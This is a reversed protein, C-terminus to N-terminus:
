FSEVGDGASWYKNKDKSDDYYVIGEQRGEKFKFRSISIPARSMDLITGVQIYSAFFFSFSDTPTLRIAQGDVLQPSLYFPSFKDEEERQPSYCRVGVHALDKWKNLVTLAPMSDVQHEPGRDSHFTVKQYLEVEPTETGYNIPEGPIIDQITEFVEYSEEWKLDMHYVVKESPITAFVVNGQITKNDVVIDKILYLSYKGDQLTKLTQQNDVVVSIHKVIKNLM